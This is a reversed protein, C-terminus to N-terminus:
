EFSFANQRFLSVCTRLEKLLKPMSMRPDRRVLDEILLTLADAKRANGGKQAFQSEFRRKLKEAEQLAATNFFDTVNLPTKGLALAMLDVATEFVAPDVGQGSPKQVRQHFSYGHAKARILKEARLMIRM